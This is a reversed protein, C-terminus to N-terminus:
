QAFIYGVRARARKSAVFRSPVSPHLVRHQATRSAATNASPVVRLSHTSISVAWWCCCRANPERQEVSQTHNRPSRTSRRTCVATHQPTQSDRTETAPSACENLPFTHERIISAADPSILVFLNGNRKTVYKTHRNKLSSM